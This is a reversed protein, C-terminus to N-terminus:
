KKGPGKSPDVQQAIRRTGPMELGLRDATEITRRLRGPASRGRCRHDPDGKFGRLMGAILAENDFVTRSLREQLHIMEDAVLRTTERHDSWLRAVTGGVALGAINITLVFVNKLVLEFLLDGETLLTRTPINLLALSEALLRAGAGYVPSPLLVKCDTGRKKEFWVSIATPHPINHATWQDPLLENQLLCVRTQWNAPLQSLVGSLDKEGVAILVMAPEQIERGAAPLDTERTVPYVPCGNKLFARAFVGGLEGMGIIVIAQKMTRIEEIGL